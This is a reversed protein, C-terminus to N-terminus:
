ALLVSREFSGALARDATVLLADLSRALAVYCADYASLGLDLALPLAAGVLLGTAAIEFPLARALDLRRAAAGPSLEGARVYGVMAQAVEAHILDPAAVQTEGALLRGVWARAAPERVALARVVVSADFVAHSTTSTAPV